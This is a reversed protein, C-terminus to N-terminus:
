HSVSTGYFAPDGMRIQWCVSAFENLEREGKDDDLPSGELLMRLGGRGDTSVRELSELVQTWQSLASKANKLQSKTAKSLQRQKSAKLYVNVLALRLEPVSQQPLVLSDVALEGIATTSLKEIVWGDKVNPMILPMADRKGVKPDATENPRPRARKPKSKRDQGRKRESLRTM